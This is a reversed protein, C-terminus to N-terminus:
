NLNQKTLKILSIWLLISSEYIIMIKKYKLFLIIQKLGFNQRVLM